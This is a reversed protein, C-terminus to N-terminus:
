DLRGRLLAVQAEIVGADPEHAAHRVYLELDALALDFVGSQALLQGRDRRLRWNGPELLVLRNLTAVQLPVDKASAHLDLLNRLMRQLIERPTSPQLCAEIDLEMPEGVADVPALSALREGLQSRSLSEGSFPDIVVLGEPVQVRFLFHGPFGVGLARLGIGQALELWLVALSVPIGRRTALVRHLYSNDADYYNNQNGRFGLDQFYLQNLARLREVASAESAVRRKLRALMADVEGRVQETDLEPYEDHAVTAAAELLLLEDDSEVLTAFYDLPTPVDFPPIMRDKYGLGPAGDIM